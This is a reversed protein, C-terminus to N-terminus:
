RIIREKMWEELALAKRPSVGFIRTDGEKWHTDSGGSILLGKKRALTKLYRIDRWSHESHVVEIGDYPYNELLYNIFDEAKDGRGEAAEKPSRENGLPHAMFALGSAAHILGFVRDLEITPAPFLATAPKLFRFAPAGARDDENEKFPFFGKDLLLKALHPRGFTGGEEARMISKIKKESVAIEGEELIRPFGIRKQHDLQYARLNDNAWGALARFREILRYQIDALATRLENNEPDFGYALTHVEPIKQQSSSTSIEVGAIVPLSYKRAVALFERFGAITDHDTLAIADVGYYHAIQCIEAFTVQKNGDSYRSHFHLDVKGAFKKQWSPNIGIKQWSTKYM